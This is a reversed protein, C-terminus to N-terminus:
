NIDIIESCEHRHFDVDYITNWVLNFHVEIKNGSINNYYSFAINYGLKKMNSYFPNNEIFTNFLLEVMQQYNAQYHM